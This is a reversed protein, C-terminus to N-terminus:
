TRHALIPERVIRRLAHARRRPSSVTLIQEDRFRTRGLPGMADEEVVLVTARADANSRRWWRRRIRLLSLPRWPRLGITEAGHRRGVPFEDVVGLPHTQEAVVHPERQPLHMAEIAFCALLRR